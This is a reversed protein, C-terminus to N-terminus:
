KKPEAVPVATKFAEIQATAAAIERTLFNRYSEPHGVHKAPTPSTLKGKLNDVYKALSIAKEKNTM